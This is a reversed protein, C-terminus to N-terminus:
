INAKESREPDSTRCAPEQTVFDFHRVSGDIFSTLTILGPPLFNMEVSSQEREASGNVAQLRRNEPNSSNVTESLSLDSLQKKM